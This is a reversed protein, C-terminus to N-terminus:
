NNNNKNQNFVDRLINNILSVVEDHSYSDQRCVGYYCSDWQGCEICMGAGDHSGECKDCLADSDLYYAKM